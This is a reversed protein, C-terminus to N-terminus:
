APSETRGGGGVVAPEIDPPPATTITVTTGSSSSDMRMSGGQGEISRRLMALGHDARLRSPSFGRGDDTITLRAPGADDAPMASVTITTARSHRVANTGLERLAQALVAETPAPLAGPGPVDARVEISALAALTRLVEVEVAMSSSVNGRIITRLDTYARSVLDQARALLAAADDHGGLAPHDELMGLTLRLASLEQGISDHLARTMRRRERDEAVVATRAARDAARNDLDTLIRVWTTALVATAMVILSKVPSGPTILALALVLAIVEVAAVRWQPVALVVAVAAVVCPFAGDLFGLYGLVPYTVALAQSTILAETARGDSSRRRLAFAIFVVPLLCAVDLVSMLWPPM